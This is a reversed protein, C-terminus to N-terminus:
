SADGHHRPAGGQPREVAHEGHDAGPLSAARVLHRGVTEVAAFEVLHGAHPVVALEVYPAVAGAITSEVCTLPNVVDQSGHVALLPLPFDALVQRVDFSEVDSHLAALSLRMGQQIARIDSMTYDPSYMLAPLMLDLIMDPAGTSASIALKSVLEAERPSWDSPDPGIRALVKLTRRDGRARAHAETLRYSERRSDPTFLNAAVFAAFLDPRRSAMLAGTASGISSGLLVIPVGPVRAAVHEAVAIGDEVLRDLSLTPDPGCGGRVFTLGAGRQDWQAVTMLREWSGLWPNFPIYPSGPGGHVVLLVPNSRDHGRITLYQEIGGIQVFAEERVGNSAYIQLATRNDARKRPRLLTAVMPNVM